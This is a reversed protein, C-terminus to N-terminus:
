GAGHSVSHYQPDLKGLPCVRKTAANPMAAARQMLLIQGAARSNASDIAIKHIQRTAKERRTSPTCQGVSTNAAAHM